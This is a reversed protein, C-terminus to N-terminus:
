IKHRVPENKYRLKTNNLIGNKGIAINSNIQFIECIKSLENNKIKKDIFVLANDTSGGKILGLEKLPM